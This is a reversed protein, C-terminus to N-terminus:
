DPQSSSSSSPFATCSACPVSNFIRGSALVGPCVQATGPAPLGATANKENHKLGHFVHCSRPCILKRLRLKRRPLPPVSAWRLAAGFISLFHLLVQKWVPCCRFATMTEEITNIGCNEKLCYNDEGYFVVRNNALM